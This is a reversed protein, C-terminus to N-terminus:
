DGTGLVEREYAVVADIEEDSLTGEWAPMSGLGNAVVARHNEADPYREVAAGDGLRPGTDGEGNDGHCGACNDAYVQEGLNVDGSADSSGTTDDGGCAALGAGVVLAIAGSITTRGTLRRATLGNRDLTVDRHEPAPDQTHGYRLRM